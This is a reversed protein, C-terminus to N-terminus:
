PSAMKNVREKGLMWLGFGILVIAGLVMFLRPLTDYWSQLGATTIATATGTITGTDKNLEANYKDTDSVATKAALEASLKKATRKTSRDGRRRWTGLVDHERGHGASVLYPESKLPAAL